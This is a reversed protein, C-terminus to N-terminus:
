ATSPVIVEIGHEFGAVDDGQWCHRSVPIKSL